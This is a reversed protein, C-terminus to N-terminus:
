FNENAHKLNQRVRLLLWLMLFVEGIFTFLILSLNYNPFLSNCLGDISYGFGALILILGIWKPVDTSKISLYGLLGLHIGFFVYGFNWTNKFNQISIWTNIQSEKQNIFDSSNVTSLVNLLNFLSIFLVVAYILRFIASLLSIDKNTPKFFLYLGWAVIIDLVVIIVYGIISLQLTLIDHFINEYTTEINNKSILSNLKTGAFIALVIMLLLGFGTILAIRRKSINQAVPKIQEVM